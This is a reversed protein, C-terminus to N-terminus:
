TNTLESPDDPDMYQRLVGELLFTWLLAVLAPLFIFPVWLQLCLFGAAVTVVGMVITRLPHSFALKVATIQLTGFSFTFRSLVPLVWCAIGAVACLLFLLGSTVAVQVDTAEVTNGYLKILAYGAAIVSGWLITSFLSPFFERKATRWFRQFIRPDHGRVCRACCDYLAATVAGFPLLLAAGLFWMCSLLLIDAVLGFPKWVWNENSFFRAM